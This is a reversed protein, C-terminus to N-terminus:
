HTGSKDQYGGAYNVVCKAGYPPSDNINIGAVRYNSDFVNRRHGRNAVGDDIILGIVIERATTVEYIINEGTVSEWRGYRDMRANPTSGDSGKHGTTGKVALDLAHDKAALCL